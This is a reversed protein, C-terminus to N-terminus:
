IEIIFPEFTLTTGTDLLARFTVALRRAAPNLDLELTPISSVGPTRGIAQRFISEVVDLSPNKVFMERFYPIGLRQDLFWEELFFRLRVRLHQAIAADGEVLSVRNGTLDLDTGNELLLLNM